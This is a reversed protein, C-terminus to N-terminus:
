WRWFLICRTALTDSQRDVATRQGRDTCCPAFSLRRLCIKIAVLGLRNRNNVALLSNCVLSSCRTHYTRDSEFMLECENHTKWRPQAIPASREFQANSRKIRVTMEFWNLALRQTSKISSTARTNSWVQVYGNCNACVLFYFLLFLSLSLSLVLSSSYTPLHLLEKLWTLCVALHRQSRSGSGSRSRNRSRSKPKAQRTRENSDCKIIKTCKDYARQCKIKNAHCRLQYVRTALLMAKLYHM